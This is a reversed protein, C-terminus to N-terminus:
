DEDLLDYLADRDELDVGPMLGLQGSFVPLNVPREASVDSREILLRVADELVSGVTRGQRVARLKVEELLNDDITVTTRV